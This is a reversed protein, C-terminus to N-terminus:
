VVAFKLSNDILGYTTRPEFLQPESEMVEGSKIGKPTFNLSFRKDKDAIIEIISHSLLSKSPLMRFNFRNEKWLTTESKQYFRM